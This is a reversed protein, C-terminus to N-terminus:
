NSGGRDDIVAGTTPDIFVVEWTPKNFVPDQPNILVPVNSPDVSVAYCDQDVRPNRAWEDTCHMLHDELVRAGNEARSAAIAAAQLGVAAQPAANFAATLSVGGQAMQAPTVTSYPFPSGAHGRTATLSAAVAALIAAATALGVYRRKGTLISHM